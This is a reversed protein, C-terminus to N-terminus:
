FDAASEFDAEQKKERESFAFVVAPPRERELRYFSVGADSEGEPRLLSQYRATLESVRHEDHSATARKEPKLVPVEPRGTQLLRETDGGKPLYFEITLKNEDSPRLYIAGDGDCTLWYRRESGISQVQCGEVNCTELVEEVLYDPHDQREFILSVTSYFGPKLRLENSDAIKKDAMDVRVLGNVSDEHVKTIMRGLVRRLEVHDIPAARLNRRVGGRRSQQGRRQLNAEFESIVQPQTVPEPVTPATSTQAVQETLQDIKSLLEDLKSDMREIFAEMERMSRRTEPTESVTDPTAPSEEVPASEAVTEQDDAPVPALQRWFSDLESQLHMSDQTILTDALKNIAGSAPAYPHQVVLPVQERVSEPLRPDYPIHAIMSVDLQLYSRAVARFKDFTREALTKSRAANIVVQVDGAYDSQKLLKLMAYGDTLSTPEPTMVLLTERAALVLKIVNDAIGSSTDILFYDFPDMSAFAESLKALEEPAAHAMRQIGSSGPIVWLNDMAPILIDPLNCTGDLVDELTQEPKFDLLINANALGLDADLLVVRQGARALASALNVSLNTKGVGGKGSTIAIIRPM